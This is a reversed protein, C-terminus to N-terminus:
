LRAGCTARWSRWPRTDSPCVCWTARPCLSSAATKVASRWRSPASPLLLSLMPVLFREDLQEKCIQKVVKKVVSFDVLYGNTLAPACGSLSVSMTYNHGHLKERFGNSIAIFHAANFKFAPHNIDVSFARNSVHKHGMGRAIRDSEGDSLDEYM